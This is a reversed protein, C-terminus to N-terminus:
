LHSHNNDPLHGNEDFLPDSSPFNNQRPFKLSIKKIAVAEGLPIGAISLRMNRRMVDVFNNKTQKAENNAKVFFELVAILIALALGGILIYFIGAVNV